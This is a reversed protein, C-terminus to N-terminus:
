RELAAAVHGAVLPDALYYEIAHRGDDPNVVGAEEDVTGVPLLTGDVGGATVADRPDRVNVWSGVAAPLRRTELRDLARIVPPWGLPAGMTLLLPVDWSRAAPHSRLVRYAILAGLSHGLVIVPGSAPAAHAVGDDIMQRLRADTLYGFCERAVFAVTAGSMGPVYADVAALVTRVRGWDGERAGADAPDTVRDLQEPTFALEAAVARVVEAVFEREDRPLDGRLSVREAEARAVGGVLHSLNGGYWPLRVDEDAFPVELGAAEFGGRLAVLWQEKMEVPGFLPRSRGHVLLIGVM